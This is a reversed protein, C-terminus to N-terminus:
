VRETTPLTLHTYSVPATGMRVVGFVKDSMEDYLRVLAEQCVKSLSYKRAREEVADPRYGYDESVKGSLGAEGYVHWSGTLLLGKAGEDRYVAECAAQLGAINVEYAGRPNENIAPIQVIASYVVVDAGRLARALANRDRVDCRVWKLGAPPEKVDVVTVDFTRSLRRAIHSGVFGAGGVVVASPM